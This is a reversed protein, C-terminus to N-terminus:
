SGILTATLFKENSIKSQKSLWGGPPPLALGTSGFYVTSLPASIINQIDKSIDSLLVSIYGTINNYNGVIGVCGAALM